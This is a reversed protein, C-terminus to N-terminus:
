LLLHPTTHSQDSPSAQSHNPTPTTTRNKEKSLEDFRGCDRLTHGSRLEGHENKYGHFTCPVELKEKVLLLARADDRPQRPRWECKQIHPPDDQNDRRPPRNNDCRMEDRDDPFGVVVM